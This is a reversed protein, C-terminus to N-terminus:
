LVICKITVEEEFIPPAHDEPPGMREDGVSGDKYCKAKWTCTGKCKANRGDCSDKIKRYSVSGGRNSCRREIGDTNEGWEPDEFVACRCPVQPPEVSLRNLIDTLNKM